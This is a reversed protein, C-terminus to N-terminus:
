MKLESAPANAIMRKALSSDFTVSKIKFCSPISGGAAAEVSYIQFQFLRKLSDRKKIIIRGDKKCFLSLTPITAGAEAIEKSANFLAM